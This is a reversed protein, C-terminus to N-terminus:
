AAEVFQVDEGVRGNIVIVDMTALMKVTVVVWYIGLALQEKTNKSKGDVTAIEARENKVLDQVFGNILGCLQGRRTRSAMKKQFPAAIEACSDLVYDTFARRNANKYGPTINSTIASQIEPTGLLNPAMIGSAKLAIYDQMNLNAVDANGAEIGVIWDLYETLQGINEEPNLVSSLSAVAADFGVNIVGDATFGAGGAVGRAGIRAIYQQVYPFAYWVRDSRYAGVGPQASGRAIARSTGLPARVVAVRGRCGNASADRANSGLAARIANSQRASAVVNAQRVDNAIAKTTDLATIYAADIAAESLAASLALDNTVVWYGSTLKDTVSNVAAVNGGLATGDDNAPRVKVSYPGAGSPTLGSVAEATVSLSQMTVWTTTGNTVRTGAPISGDVGTTANASAGSTIGLGTATSTSKFVLTGTGPTNINSFRVRGSPDRDVVVKSSTDTNVVTNLETITVHDIDAVDGTGNTISGPTFGLATTVSADSVALIQVNGGTGRKRGTISTKASSAAFATYGATANMRAVAQAHSQDGALFTTTYIGGDLKYTISEGGAFTTPYTGDSSLSTAAAADWTCTLDSGDVTLVATQGPELNFDPGDGGYLSACRTFKVSGVSTDVRTLFLRRFRKRSLWLFGNGNWYEFSLSSDAKRGRACPDNADVGDRVFGFQGFQGFQDSEGFVEIPTNLPGDEFEAVLLVPRSGTGAAQATPEDELIVVGEIQSLVDSGPNTTYHRIFATM